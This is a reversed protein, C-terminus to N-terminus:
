SHRISSELGHEGSGEVELVQSLVVGLEVDVVNFKLLGSVAESLVTFRKKRLLHFVGQERGCFDLLLVDGIVLRHRDLVSRIGVLNGTSVEFLELIFYGETLSMEAYAFVLDVKWLTSDAQQSGISFM